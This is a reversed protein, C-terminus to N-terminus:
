PGFKVATKRHGLVGWINPMHALILFRSDGFCCDISAAPLRLKNANLCVCRYKFVQLCVLGGVELKAREQM